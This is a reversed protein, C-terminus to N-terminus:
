QRTYQIVSKLIVQSGNTTTETFLPGLDNFQTESHINYDNGLAQDSVFVTLDGDKSLSGSSTSGQDAGLIYQGPQGPKVEIWYVSSYSQPTGAAATETVQNQSVLREQGNVESLSSNVEAVLQTTRGSIPYTRTGQGNWRGEMRAFLPDEGTASQASSTSLTLASATLGGLCLILALLFSKNVVSPNSLFPTHTL